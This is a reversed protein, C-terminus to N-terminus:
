AYFLHVSTTKLVNYIFFVGTQYLNYAFGNFNVNKIVTQKFYIMSLVALFLASIAHVSSLLLFFFVNNESSDQRKKSPCTNAPRGGLCVLSRALIPWTFLPFTFLHLSKILHTRSWWRQAGPLPPIGCRLYVTM